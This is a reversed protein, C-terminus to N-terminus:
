IKRAVFTLIDSIDDFPAFRRVLSLALGREKHIRFIDMGWDTVVLSPDDNGAVHYEPPLLYEIEGENSLRARTRSTKRFPAPFPISFIHIGNNKLVRSIESVATEANFVHEFVEISIILDFSRDGFTLKTLDQCYVGDHISGLARELWFYSQKYNKLGKLKEAISGKIGVEYISRGLFNAHARLQGLHLCEGQGFEDLMIQAIARHRSMAKCNPCRFSAHAPQKEPLVPKARFGCISCLVPIDSLKSAVAQNM